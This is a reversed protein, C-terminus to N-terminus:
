GGNPFYVHREEDSFQRTFLKESLERLATIGVCVDCYYILAELKSSAAAVHHRDESFAVDLIEGNAPPFSVILQGSKGNWIKATHDSSCTLVFNGDPSFVAGNVNAQHGQFLAIEHATNQGTRLDWKFAFNASATLLYVGDRSFSANNVLGTSHPIRRVSKADSVSWVEALNGSCVVVFQGDYSFSARWVRQAYPPTKFVFSGDVIKAIFAIKADSAALILKGDPSIEVSRIEAGYNYSMKPSGDTASYVRVDGKKSTTVILNGDRSFAASDLALGDEVTPGQPLEFLLRGTSVDWVRAKGDSSATVLRKGDFNFAVSLFRGESQRLKMPAQVAWLRATSDDGATVITKGDPSFAASNVSGSHGELNFLMQGSVADWIKATKNTNSTVIWNGDPNFEATNVFGSDTIIAPPASLHGEPIRWIRTTGDFGSTVASRSDASFSATSVSETHGKLCLIQDGTLANWVAATKDGSATIILKGDSNFDASNVPGSHVLPKSAPKGTTVNWVIATQDGSSTVVLQSDPSFKAGNISATHGRLDIVSGSGTLSWVKAIKDSSATVLLKSDPSFAVANIPRTHGKLVLRCQGTNPDWVRATNDSSATAVLKGDSSFAASNIAGSHGILDAVLKADSVNWIEGKGSADGTVLLRGDPSFAVAQVRGQSGHLVAVMNSQVLLRRLDDEDQETHVRRAVEKTLMLALEPDVLFASKAQAILLRSLAEHQAVQTQGFQWIAVGTTALISALAIVSMIMLTKRRSHRKERERLSADLLRRESPELARMGVLGREVTALDDGDLPAGVISQDWEVSRNELIRRARQGPHGSKAFRERVLPALTDHALRTAGTTARDSITRSTDSILFSDHLDQILKPLIDNQNRYRTQLEETSRQAATGLKTTHFELVDLALGSSVAQVQTNALNAIQQDLFDGLLIGQRKLSVYLAQDFRPADQNEAKAKEWMKTLLIQLTPAIPSDPDSLLDDAIITPLAEDVTLGYHDRLRAQTSIGGVAEILGKRDLRELFVNTYALKNDRLRAEIEPQWEKRFALILRGKVSTKTEHFVERLSAVFNDIENPIAKNPRTFTEEVQDLIVLLKKRSISECDHWLPLMSLSASISPALARELTKTLGIDHQRRVYRIEFSEELRPLLGAALISSKGVGSQGYLLIISEPYPGEVRDYLKRIQRNRGFFIEAHEKEFWDLYRFPKEPLPRIPIPPIPYLPDDAADALNWESAAEAGAHTYIEWPWRDETIRDPDDKSAKYYLHRPNNGKELRVRSQAEKYAGKITAGSALGKYFETAFTKAVEDEVARSTAIVISVNAALLHEVQPETACANLFVLQLGRQEGLFAALGQPNVDVLGRDPTELLLDYSSAHGGYHFIVVRNRCERFVDLIEEITSNALERVECLGKTRPTKLAERINSLELPLNRLYGQRGTYDNAFALLIVPKETPDNM